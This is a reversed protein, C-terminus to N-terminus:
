SCKGDNNRWVYDDLPTCKFQECDYRYESELGNSRTFTSSKSEIEPSERVVTFAFSIVFFAAIVLVLSSILKVWRVLRGDSYIKLYLLEFWPHVIRRVIKFCNLSYM